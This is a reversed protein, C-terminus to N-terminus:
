GTGMGHADLWAGVVTARSAGGDVQANMARLDDTTLHDSVRNVIDAVRPGLADLVEPRVIPTVNESPQLLRDDRLLVFGNTDISGDTTFLLGVDIQGSRLAAVTLPGGVDLPVFGAFTLGYVSRLGQLCLPRSSCEPPGGFTLRAAYPALDSLNQLAYLRATAETIVFGNRDQAPSADLATLGRSAAASVLADHTRTAAGSVGEAVDGGLFGLASGAYEPVLELLGRELAPDVLERPGLDLKLEVHFGGRTLAAGYLTALLDSEPFNFAGITIADDHLISAPATASGSRSCAASALLCGSLVVGVVSRCPRSM